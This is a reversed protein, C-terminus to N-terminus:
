GPSPPPLATQEDEGPRYPMVVWLVLYIIIGSGIGMLASLVFALRLVMVPIGFEQSLGACVGAIRKYRRSRYWTRSLATEEVFSGCYRCKVAEARIEEACHPCRKMAVDPM